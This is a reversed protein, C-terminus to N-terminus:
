WTPCGNEDVADDDNRDPMHSVSGPTDELRARFDTIKTIALDLEDRLTRAQITTLVNSGRRGGRPGYMALIIVDNEGDDTAYGSVISTVFERM